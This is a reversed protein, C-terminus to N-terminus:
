FYIFLYFNQMLIKFYFFIYLLSMKKLCVNRLFGRAYLDSAIHRLIVNFYM